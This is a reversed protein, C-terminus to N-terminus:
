SRAGKKLVTRQRATLGARVGWQKDVKLADTLCQQKVPCHRCVRIAEENLAARETFFIDPDSELCLAEQRWERPENDPVLYPNM